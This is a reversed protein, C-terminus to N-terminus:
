AGSTLLKASGRSGGYAALGEALHDFVARIRLSTRQDEHMVVWIPLPIDVAKPLLRVLGARRGLPVQCAGIGFGARIAALGALDNDTRLSFLERRYPMDAPRTARVFPTEQDYGILTHRPLDALTKPRGAEALYDAHAFLGIPIVCVKRAVLADQDPPSSRVAVDADRRLLNETRNTTSLEVVIGPFRRRMAALIPPLVEVGVVESATVRVVGRLEGKAGSAARLVSAAASAMAEAHPKLELAADTPLLGHSARSFLPVGLSEELERIHRGLSPQTMGLRRAAGSLSGESLVALFSRFLDWAPGNVTM